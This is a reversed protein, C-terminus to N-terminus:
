RRARPRPPNFLLTFVLGHVRRWDAGPRREVLLMYAVELRSDGRLQRGLGLIFRSENFGEGSLDVLAEASVVPRWPSDESERYLQLQNRYRWLIGTPRWRFELRNRDELDFQGLQFRLTPELEVRYEQLFARPEDQRASALLYLGLLLADHAEWMPGVRLQLTDLGPARTDFRTDTSGRLWTPRPSGEPGVRMRADLSTWVALVEGRAGAPVLLGLVLPVALWRASM